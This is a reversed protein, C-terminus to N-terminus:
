CGQDDFEQLPKEFYCHLGVPLRHYDVDKTEAEYLGDAYTKWYLVRKSRIGEVNESIDKLMAAFAKGSYTTDLQTDETSKATAVADRTEQTVEAYGSGPLRVTFDNESFSLQPFNDDRRHLYDNLSYASDFIAALSKSPDNDSDTCVGVLKSNMGAAKLGVLLGSITGYSGYPVYIYDPYYEGREDCQRKLEFAANVYGTAGLEDSGGVPIFYNQKSKLLAVIRANRENYNEFYEVCANFHLDLLLNRRASQTIKQRVLLLLAKLGVKQAYAATALAHNSGAGGVTVVTQAKRKIADALLFELKRVKNGGFIDGSKGDDKCWLKVGLRDSLRDFKKLPTPFTGLDMHPLEANLGPYQQLLPLTHDMAWLSQIFFTAIVLYFPFRIRHYMVM